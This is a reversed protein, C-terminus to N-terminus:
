WEEEGEEDEGEEGLLEEEWDGGMVSVEECALLREPGRRRLRRRRLIRRNLVQDLDLVRSGGRPRLSM